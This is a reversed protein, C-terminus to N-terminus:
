LGESEKYIGIFDADSFLGPVTEDRSFEVSLLAGAYAENVVVANVVGPGRSCDERDFNADCQCAGKV